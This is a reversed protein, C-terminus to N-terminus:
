SVILRVYYLVMSWTVILCLGLIIILLRYFSDIRM